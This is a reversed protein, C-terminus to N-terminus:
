ETAGGKEALSGAILQLASSRGVSLAKMVADSDTPYENRESTLLKNAVIAVLEPDASLCVIKAEAVTNGRYLALFTTVFFGRWYMPM